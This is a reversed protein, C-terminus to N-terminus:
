RVLEQKVNIWNDFHAITESKKEIRISSDCNDLVFSSNTFKWNSKIGDKDRTEVTILNMM